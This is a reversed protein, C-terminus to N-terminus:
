GAYPHIPIPQAQFREPSFWEGCKARTTFCTQPATLKDFIKLTNHPLSFRRFNQSYQFDPLFAFADLRYVTHVVLYLSM